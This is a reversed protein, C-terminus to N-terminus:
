QSKPIDPCIKLFLGYKKLRLNPSRILADTIANEFTGAIELIKKSSFLILVKHTIFIEPGLNGRINM